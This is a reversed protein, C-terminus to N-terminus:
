AAFRAHVREQEASPYKSVRCRKISPNSLLDDVKRNEPVVGILDVEELLPLHGIPALSQVVTLKGSSDWSPLTQLCLRRLNRLNALPSLDTVKPLHLVELTQLWALGSLVDFSADPYTAIQLKRLKTFQALPQLTRFGCHWVRASQYASPNEIMPFTKRKDRILALHM